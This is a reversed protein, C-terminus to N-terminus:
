QKCCQTLHSTSKFRRVGLELFSSTRVDTEPPRPYLPNFNRSEESRIDVKKTPGIPKMFTVQSLFGGCVCLEFDPRNRELDAKITACASDDKDKTLLM